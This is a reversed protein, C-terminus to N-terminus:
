KELLSLLLETDASNVLPSPQILSKLEITADPCIDSNVTDVILHQSFSSTALGINQHNKEYFDIPKIFHDLNSLTMAEKLIQNIEHNPNSSGSLMPLLFQITEPQVTLWEIAKFPILRSTIFSTKSLMYAANMRKSNFRFRYPHNPIVLGPSWTNGSEYEGEFQNILPILQCLSSYFVVLSWFSNQDSRDESSMDLPLMERKSLKLSTIVMNLTADILGGENSYEGESSAPLIQVLETLTKIPQLYFDIFLDKTLDSISFLKNIMIERCSSKLLEEGSIPYYFGAPITKKQADKLLTLRKKQHLIEKLINFM